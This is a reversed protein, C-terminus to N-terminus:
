DRGVKEFIKRPIHKHKFDNIRDATSHVDVFGEDIGTNSGGILLANGGVFAFVKRRECFIKTKADFPKSCIVALVNTHLGRSLIPNRNVDNPFLGTVDNKSM